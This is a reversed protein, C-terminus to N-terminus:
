FEFKHASYLTQAALGGDGVGGPLLYDSTTLETPRVPSFENSITIGGSSRVLVTQARDHPATVIPFPRGPRVIMTRPKPQTAANM